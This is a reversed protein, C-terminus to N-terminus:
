SDSASLECASPLPAQKGGDAHGTPDTTTKAGRVGAFSVWGDTKSDVRFWIGSNWSPTNNPYVAVGTDEWGDVKISTNPTYGGIQQAGLEPEARLATGYPAWRDQAIVQFPSCHEPGSSGDSKSCGSLVLALSSAVAVMATAGRHRSEAEGQIVAMEQAHTAALVSTDEPSPMHDLSRINPWLTTPLCRSRMLWPEPTSTMLYTALKIGISLNSCVVRHAFGCSRSLLTSALRCHSKRPADAEAFTVIDDFVFGIRALDSIAAFDLGVDSLSLNQDPSGM